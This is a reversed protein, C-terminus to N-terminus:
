YELLAEKIPNFSFPAKKEGKLVCFPNSFPPKSEDGERFLAESDMAKEWCILCFYEKQGRLLDSESVAIM